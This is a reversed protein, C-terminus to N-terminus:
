RGAHAAGPHNLVFDEIVAPYLDLEARLRFQLYEEPHREALARRAARLVAQAFLNCTACRSRRNGIRRIGTLGRMRCEPCPLPESDTREKGTAM